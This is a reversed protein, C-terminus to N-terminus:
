SYFQNNSCIHTQIDIISSLIFHICYYHLLFYVTEMNFLWIYNEKERDVQQCLSKTGAVM